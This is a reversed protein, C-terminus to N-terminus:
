TKLPVFEKINVLALSITNWINLGDLPDFNTVQISKLILLLKDAQYYGERQNNWVYVLNEAFFEVDLKIHAVIEDGECFINLRRLEIM